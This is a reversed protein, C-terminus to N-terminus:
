IACGGCAGLMRPEEEEARVGLAHERQTKGAAASTEERRREGCVGTKWSVGEGECVDV